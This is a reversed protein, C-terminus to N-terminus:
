INCLLACFSDPRVFLRIIRGNNLSYDGFGAPVDTGVYDLATDYIVDGAADPRYKDLNSFRGFISCGVAKNANLRICRPM